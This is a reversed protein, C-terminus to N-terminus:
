WRSNSMISGYVNTIGQIVTQTHMRIAYKGSFSSKFNQPTFWGKNTPIIKEAFSGTIASFTGNILTENSVKSISARLNRMSLKQPTDSLSTYVAIIDGQLNKEYFYTDWVDAAYTSARYQFGIIGTNNYLYVTIEGCREEAM